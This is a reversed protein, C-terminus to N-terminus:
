NFTIKFGLKELLEVGSEAKVERARCMHLQKCIVKPPEKELLKKIMQQWMMPLLVKCQSKYEQPVYDCVKQLAKIIEPSTANKKILDELYTAIKICLECFQGDNAEPEPVTQVQKEPVFDTCVGIAKCVQQPNTKKMLEKILIPTYEQVFAKCQAKFVSPIADCVKNLAKKIKEETANNGIEKQVQAIVFQCVTCAVSNPEAKKPEEVPAIHVEDKPCAGIAKCVEEPSAKKLLMEIIIHTYEQVFAKCQPRFVSPIADCVKNLAKKIKEETANNGIEKVITAIVFHCVSCGPGDDTEQEHVAVQKAPIQLETKPCAGIAKCVEEPSLKKLLM